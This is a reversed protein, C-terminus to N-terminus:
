SQAIQSLSLLGHKAGMHSVVSAAQNIGWQIATDINHNKILAAVFGSGFADGAGTEEITKVIKAKYSQVNGHQLIQGGQKGDTICVLPCTSLDMHQLVDAEERNLFLTHILPLLPQWTNTHELEAKGPNVAVKIDNDHAFQILEAMLRMDGGLSSLHLWNTDLRHWPIDDLTLMKSAGRFVAVSRGGEPHVLICSIGTAEREEEVLMGVDVNERKLEEKITAAILDTGMEAVIAAKLRKRAYSVANNTAAGGSCVEIDDVETKGGFDLALANGDPFHQSSLKAFDDSKLYIDLLASGITIVDFTPM